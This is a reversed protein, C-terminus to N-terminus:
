APVDVGPRNLPHSLAEGSETSLPLIGGWVDLALDAEPEEPCGSGVKASCGQLRVNICTTQRAPHQWRCIRPRLRGSALHRHETM